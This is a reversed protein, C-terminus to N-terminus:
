NCHFKGTKDKITIFSTASCAKSEGIKNVAKVRFSFQKGEQLDTAKFNPDFIETETPLVTWLGSGNSSDCIEIVYNLIPSGGDCNPSDWALEVSSKTVEDYRLGLPPSPVEVFVCVSM